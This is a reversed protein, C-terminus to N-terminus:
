DGEWEGSYLEVHNFKLLGFGHRKNQYFEGEYILGNSYYLTGSGHRMQQQGLTMREGDYKVEQKKTGVLFKNSNELHSQLMSHVSQESAFSANPKLYKTSSKKSVM